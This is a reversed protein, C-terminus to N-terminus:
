AFCGATKINYNIYCAFFIRLLIILHKIDVAFIVIKKPALSNCISNKFCVGWGKHKLIQVFVPTYYKM